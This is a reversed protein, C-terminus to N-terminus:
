SRRRCSNKTLSTHHIIHHIYQTVTLPVFRMATNFELIAEVFKTEKVLRMGSQRLREAQLRDKVAPSPESLIELRCNNTLQSLREKVELQCFLAAEQRTGSWSVRPPQDALVQVSASINM